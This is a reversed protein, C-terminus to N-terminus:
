ASLPQSFHKVQKRDGKADYINNDPDFGKILNFARKTSSAILEILHSNVENKHNCQDVKDMLKEWFPRLTKNTFCYNRVQRLKIPTSTGHNIISPIQDNNIEDVLKNKQKILTGLQEFDRKELAKQEGSLVQHLDHYQATWQNILTLYLQDDNTKNM